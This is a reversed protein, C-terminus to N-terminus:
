QIDVEIVRTIKAPVKAFIIHEMMCQGLHSWQLFEISCVFSLKYDDANQVFVSRKIPSFSTWNNCLLLAKLFLIIIRHSTQNELFRVNKLYSLTKLIHICKWKALKLYLNELMCQLNYQIQFSNPNHRHLHSPFWKLSLFLFTFSSLILIAHNSISM